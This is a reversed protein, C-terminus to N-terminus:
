MGLNEVLNATSLPPCHVWSSEASTTIPSICDVSDWLLYSLCYNTRPHPACLPCHRASLPLRISPCLSVMPKASDCRSDLQLETPLTSSLSVSREGRLSLSSSISVVVDVFGECAATLLEAGANNWDVTVYAGNCHQLCPLSVLSVCPLSCWKFSFFISM